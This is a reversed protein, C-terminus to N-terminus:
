KTGTYLLFERSFPEWGVNMGPHTLRIHVLLDWFADSGSPHILLLPYSNDRRAAIDALAQKLGAPVEAGDAGPRKPEAPFERKEPHLVYGTSSVEIFVPKRVVGDPSPGPVVEVPTPEGIRVGTKPAVPALARDLEREKDAILTALERVRIHLDTHAARRNALEAEAARIQRELQEYSAADIGAPAIPADPNANGDAAEPSAAEAETSIVRTSVTVIMMLVNVAILGSLVSLFPFLTLDLKARRRPM